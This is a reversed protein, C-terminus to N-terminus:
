DYTDVNMGTHKLASLVRAALQAGGLLGRDGLQVGEQGWRWSLEHHWLSEHTSCLVANQTSSCPPLGLCCSGREM